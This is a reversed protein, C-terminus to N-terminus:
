EKLFLVIVLLDVGGSMGVVVCINLNDIMFIRGDFFKIKLKFKFFWIIRLDIM